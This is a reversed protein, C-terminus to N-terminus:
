SFAQRSILNLLISRLRPNKLRGTVDDVFGSILMNLAEERVIARSLLYFLQDEDLQGITAGHTCRVDDAMIELQPKTDVRAESSLLLNRNLQYASIKQAERRVIVKGNFVSHSEDRLISKYLQTSATDPAIHEVCTHSDAHATGAIAHLGNVAAQAGPETLLVSLNDRVLAGGNTYFFLDARSDRSQYIRASSIQAASSHHVFARLYELSSGEQLFVDAVNAVFFGGDGAFFTESLVLSSQEEALVCIRPFFATEPKGTYYHLIHCEASVGRNLRLFVPNRFYALNLAFLAPHDNALPVLVRARLAAPLSDLGSASSLFEVGSPLCSLRPCFTGNVFVATDPALLAIGDPTVSASGDAVPISFTRRGLFSTDTYKWEEDRSAPWDSPLMVDEAAQQASLLWQPWNETKQRDKQKEVVFNKM